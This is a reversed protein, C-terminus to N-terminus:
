RWRSNLKRNFLGNNNVVKKVEGEVRPTILGSANDLAYGLQDRAMKAGDRDKLSVMTKVIASQILIEKLEIPIQPYVSYNIPCLYSGVSIGTVDDVTIILDETNIDTIISGSTITYPQDNSPVDLVDDEAFSDPIASVILEFGNIATVLACNDEHILANPRKFYYIRINDSLVNAPNFKIDNGELYFGVYSYNGQSISELSLRPLNRIFNGSGDITVIDRLKQGIARSPISITNSYSQDQAVVFFEERHKMMFPIIDSTMADNLFAIYDTDSFMGDPLSGSRKIDEILSSTKLDM